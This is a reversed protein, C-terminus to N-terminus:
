DVDGCSDKDDHNHGYVQSKSQAKGSNGNYNNLGDGREGGIHKKKQLINKIVLIYM